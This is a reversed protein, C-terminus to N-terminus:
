IIQNIKEKSLQKDSSIEQKDVENLQNMYEEIKVELRMIREQLKKDTFNRDKSNVAKFKSGDVAILEKGYLDLNLCLKVFNRFVNKLAVANDHRFRAITKYDPSLKKMLWMVELNRKSETELRRSSRIRNMYGYVYLKLMDKPSYMPRGTTNPEYKRFGLSQLDLSEVYVDIVRVPNDESIYDEINEPFLIMQNRNEGAIYEM